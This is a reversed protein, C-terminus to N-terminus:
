FLQRMTHKQEKGIIFDCIFNRAYDPSILSREESCLGARSAGKAKMITKKAKDQQYSKGHTPECNVYWYATPKVYYDGRLMRNNVLTPSMVFNAKLFTQESWPNEMILRLGRQEAMSIMKVALRFFYERNSSRELIKDTKEKMNLGRYNTCGFSFAMQSTACFYICPFFALVLDNKTMKDFFSEGGGYAKEIELFLDIQYDTEDFNNQIDYCYAEYGLKKFANKFVGSQEFLCHVAGNIEM